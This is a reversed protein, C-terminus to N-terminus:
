SKVLPTLAHYLDLSHLRKCLLTYFACLIPYIGRFVGM